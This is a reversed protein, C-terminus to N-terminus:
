ADEKADDAAPAVVPTTTPVVAPPNASASAANMKNIADMLQDVRESLDSIEDRTPVGVKQFLSTFRESFNNEFRAWVDEVRDRADGLRNKVADVPAGTTGTQGREFEEGREVLQRFLKNGEEGAMTMAGLGALWIKQASDRVDAQLNEARDKISM